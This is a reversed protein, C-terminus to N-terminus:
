SPTLPLDLAQFEEGDWATQVIVESQLGLGTVGNAFARKQSVAELVSLIYTVSLTVFLMGGGTALATVLQWIGTRPAFDGNGLTFITYGTFYIQDTWSISGRDLTDVLVSEGSAFIFTWGMWIFALWILITLVLILPSILSLVQPRHGIMRRSGHWTWQMLRATLPGAGGEVWLTTWLLDGIAVGLFLVGLSFYILNM